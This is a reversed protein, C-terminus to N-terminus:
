HPPYWGIWIGGPYSATEFKLWLEGAKWCNGSRNQDCLEFGSISAVRKTRDEACLRGVPETQNFDRVDTCPVHIAVSPVFSVWLWDHGNRNWRYYTRRNGPPVVARSYRGYLRVVDDLTSQNSIGLIRQFDSPKLKPVVATVANQSRVQDVKMASWFRLGPLTLCLWAGLIVLGVAITGIWRYRTAWRIACRANQRVPGLPSDRVPTQLASGNATEGRQPAIPVGNHDDSQGSVPYELIQRIVGALRKLHREMPPTFADLWNPMNIFYELAGEPAVDEIRVPIIPMGYKVAREVERKIHESTNAKASFVLVMVRSAAIADIISKGWDAGPLIDRSAIWCRIRKAELTACVAHGITKDDSTCSIFVDHAM